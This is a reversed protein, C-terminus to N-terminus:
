RLQETNRYTYTGRNQSALIRLFNTEEPALDPGQGFKICHIAARRGRNLRTRITYLEAPELKPEDADTLFFVVDPDFSFAREMAPMHKTGGEAIITRIFRNALLQNHEGARYLKVRSDNRFKMPFVIDNYAVIQFQQSGDLRNVSEILKAKAYEIADHTNMSASTDIIYVIREATSTQGMFSVQGAGAGGSPPPALENPKLQSPKIETEPVGGSTATKQGMGIFPNEQPEPLKTLNDLTQEDIKAAENASELPDTVPETVSEPTPVEESIPQEIPNEPKLYIGVERLGTDQAPGIGPSSDGCSPLGSTVLVGLVIGHIFASILWGPGSASAATPQPPPQTETPPM